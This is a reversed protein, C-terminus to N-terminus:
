RGRPRGFHAALVVGWGKPGRRLATTDKYRQHAAPRGTLVVHAVARDGQEDCATVHASLAAFGVAALYTGGLSAFREVPVRGRSEPELSAHAAGWDKTVVAQFFALAAERAGTGSPAPASTNCGAALGALVGGVLCERRSLNL